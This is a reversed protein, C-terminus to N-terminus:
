SGGRHRGWSMYEELDAATLSPRMKALSSAFHRDHVRSASIDERMAGIAAERCLGAIEAGTFLETDAAIARLDVDEALPVDRTHIRLTQLRGEEDPPPVFLVVDMRGPRVLAHDLAGPRNTAGLVLVGRALELGDMETLLASLLRSGTRPGSPDGAGARRGAIADVEDLLIIAPASMRGRRFTERLIAEGEGAYMSYVQACSLPLLRAGSETAVARALTTKCCGPPGHLLVGRPATLGLRRFADARAVPWEVAQRLRRKVDALGGVDGWRVPAVDLEYGRAVSPRVLKLAAQFDRFEVPRGIESASSPCPRSVSTPHGCRPPHRSQIADSSPSARLDAGAGNRKPGTEDAAADTRTPRQVNSGASLSAFQAELSLCSAASDAGVALAPDKVIEGSVRESAKAIDATIATKGFTGNEESIGVMGSRGIWGSTGRAASAAAQLAHMAAERCLAAVDAGTYGHSRAAVTELDADHALPLGRSHFRLLELRQHYDPVGVAVEVDLRGPRRLAPDIANPRNTAGVVVVRGKQGCGVSAGDRRASATSAALGDLLTLLQAVVRTEHPKQPDRRPCLTDIEDLFLVVALGEDEADQAAAKFAERLRRESEGTHAGFVDSATLSSSSLRAVAPHDMFCCGM